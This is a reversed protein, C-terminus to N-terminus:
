PVHTTSLGEQNSAHLLQLQCNGKESTVHAGSEGSWEWLTSSPIDLSFCCERLRFGSTNQCM